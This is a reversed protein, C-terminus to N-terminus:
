GHDAALLDFLRGLERLDDLVVEEEVQRRQQPLLEDERRRLDREMRGIALAQTLDAAFIQVIARVRVVLRDVLAPRLERLEAVEVRLTFSRCKSSRFPPGM